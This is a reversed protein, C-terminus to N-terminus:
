HGAPPLASSADPPAPPRAGLLPPTPDAGPTGPLVGQPPLTPQTPDGWFLRSPPTQREQEGRLYEYRESTLERGDASTRLVTPKIFIMLNTKQRRRADYRFLAGAIPIDGLGPVKDSGDTLQDQILGGLVIVQTDDVVVT